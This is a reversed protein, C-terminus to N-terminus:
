RGPQDAKPGFTEANERRIEEIIRPFDRQTLRGNGNAPLALGSTVLNASPEIELTAFRDFQIGAYSSPNRLKLPPGARGCGFEATSGPPQADAVLWPELMPGVDFTRRTVLKWDPLRLRSDWWLGDVSRMAATAKEKPVAHLRLLAMHLWSGMSRNYQLEDSSDRRLIIGSAIKIGLLNSYNDEPTFASVKEPWGPLSAYGYWTAIEHWVAVQFTIWSAIEVAIRRRGLQEIRRADVPQLRVRRKGGQDSLDFEGGEHLRRELQATLYVTLDACDRVHAIDIFGGRCTYVLGNNERRIQRKEERTATEFLWINYKHPGIDDADRMNSLSFGPVPVAGVAVQLDAGFACCPRLNTPEPPLPISEPDFGQTHGGYTDGLAASVIFDPARVEDPALWLPITACGASAQALLLAAALRLRVALATAARHVPFPKL